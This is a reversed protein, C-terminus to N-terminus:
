KGNPPRCLAVLGHVHDAADLQEVQEIVREANATGVVPSAIARFKAQLRRGQDALDSAPRSVDGRIRHVVGDRSTVILESTGLELREDGVVRIKDRLEVLEPAACTEGVYTDIRDTGVGALAM